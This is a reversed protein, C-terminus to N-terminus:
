FFACVFTSKKKLIQRGERTGFCTLLNQAEQFDVLHLYFSFSKANNSNGRHSMRDCLKGVSGLFTSRFDDNMFQAVNVHHELHHHPHEKWQSVQRM